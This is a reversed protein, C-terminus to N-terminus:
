YWFDVTKIGQNTGQNVLVKWYYHHGSSLPPFSSSPASWTVNFSPMGSLLCPGYSPSTGTWSGTSFNWWKGIGPTADYFETKCSAWSSSFGAGWAGDTATGSFSSPYGSNITATPDTIDWIHKRVPSTCSHWDVYCNSTEDATQNSAYWPGKTASGMSDTCIWNGANLLFGSGNRSCWLDGCTSAPAGTVTYYLTATAHWNIDHDYDATGCTAHGTSLYGLSLTSALVPVLFKKRM